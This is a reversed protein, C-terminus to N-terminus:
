AMLRVVINLIVNINVLVVIVCETQRLTKPAARRAQAITPSRVSGGCARATGRLEVVVAPCARSPEAADDGLCAGGGGGGGGGIVVAM